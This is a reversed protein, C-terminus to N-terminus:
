HGIYLRGHERRERVPILESLEREAVKGDKHNKALHAVLPSSMVTLNPNPHAVLPIVQVGANLPFSMEGARRCVQM